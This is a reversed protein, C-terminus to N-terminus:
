VIRLAVPSTRIKDCEIELPVLDNHYLHAGARVCIRNDTFHLVPLIPPEITKPHLERSVANGILSPTHPKEAEYPSGAKVDKLGRESAIFVNCEERDFVRRERVKIPRISGFFAQRM